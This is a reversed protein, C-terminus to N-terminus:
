RWKFTVEDEDWLWHGLSGGLEFLLSLLRPYSVETVERLYVTLAQTSTLHPYVSARLSEIHLLHNRIALLLGRGSWWLENKVTM